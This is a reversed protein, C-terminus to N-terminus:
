LLTPSRVHAPTESEHSVFRYICFDKLKFTTEDAANFKWVYVYGQTPGWASTLCVSQCEIHRQHVTKMESIVFRFQALTFSKATVVDHVERYRQANNWTQMQRESMTGGLVFRCWNTTSTNRNLHLVIANHACYCTVFLLNYSISHCPVDVVAVGVIVRLYM